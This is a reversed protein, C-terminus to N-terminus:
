LDGARCPHERLSLLAGGLYSWPGSEPAAFRAELSAQEDSEQQAILFSPATSHFDLKSHRYAPIVTLTGADTVWDLTGSLGWYDNNQFVSTPLPSFALGKQLPPGLFDAAPFVLARSFIAGARPDNMGVRPSGDLFGSVGGQLM